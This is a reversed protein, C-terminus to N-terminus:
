LEEHGKLFGNKRAVGQTSDAQTAPLVCGNTKFEDPNGDGLEEYQWTITECFIDNREVTRGVTDQGCKTLPLPDAFYTACNANTAIAAARLDGRANQLANMAATVDADSRGSADLPAVHKQLAALCQPNRKVDQATCHKYPEPCCCMWVSEEVDKGLVELEKECIKELLDVFCNMAQFHPCTRREAPTGLVFPPGHGGGTLEASVATGLGLLICVAKM